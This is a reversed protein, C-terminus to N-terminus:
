YERAISELKNATSRTVRGTKSIKNDEQFSMVANETCIGFYGAIPCDSLTKGEGPYYGLISLMNQVDLVKERKTTGRELSGSFNKPIITSIGHSSSPIGTLVDRLGLYTKYAMERLVKERTDKNTIQSEYIYSYEILISAGELTNSAGVAILSTDEIVIDKEAPFNSERVFDNLSDRVRDAIFLSSDHNRYSRQPIYISFGGYEGGVDWRGPYDNFHIHIVIDMENDNAWKNIGYLRYVVEGPATNHDVSQIEEVEGNWIKEQAITAYVSRFRNISDVNEEFYKAFEKTYGDEDRTIHVEIANEEELFTKLENALQLNVEAETIDDYIAGSFEDDHGPVLLIRVKGYKDGINILDEESIVDQANIGAYRTKLNEISPTGSLLLKEEGLPTTIDSAISIHATWLFYASVGFICALTLCLPPVWRDSHLDANLKM